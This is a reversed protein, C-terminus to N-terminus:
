WKLDTYENIDLTKKKEHMKLAYVLMLATVGFGIVIATLVLAQPVPDVAVQSLNEVTVPGDVIPATRGPLYGLAVILINLGTDFVTFSIIMKLINKRGLIGWLGIAMLLIGSLIAIHEVSLKM